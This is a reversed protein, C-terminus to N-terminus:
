GSSSSTVSRHNVSGHGPLRRGLSSSSRCLRTALDEDKVSLGCGGFDGSFRSRKRVYRRLTPQRLSRGGNRRAASRCSAYGIFHATRIRRDNRLPRSGRVFRRDRNQPYLAGGPRNRRAGSRPSRPPDGEMRQGSRQGSLRRISINSRTASPSSPWAYVYSARRYVGVRRVVSRLTPPEFGERRAMVLGWAGRDILPVSLEFRDREVMWDMLKQVERLISRFERTHARNPMACPGPSRSRAASIPPVRCFRDPSSEAPDV